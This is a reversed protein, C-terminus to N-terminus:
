NSQDDQSENTLSNGADDPGDADTAQQKEIADLLEAEEEGDLRKM